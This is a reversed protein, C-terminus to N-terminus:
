HVRNKHYVFNDIDRYSNDAESGAQSTVKVEVNIIRCIVFVSELLQKYISFYAFQNIVINAINMYKSTM